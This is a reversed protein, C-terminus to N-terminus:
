KKRKLAKITQNAALKGTIIATPLGTPSFVWQGAQYISPLPTRVSKAIRRMKHEVPIEENTFAWGTITGDTNGTIRAISLPTYSFKDTMGKCLGPYITSDLINIIAEECFVKFEDYWGNDEIHKALKYDFLVSIILGTKGEPALAPDRLVPCSIEYTTLQFYKTLWNKIEEKSGKIPKPGAKSQGTSAPTYFFHESAIKAFTEKDIDLKLYTTFVSDGGVKDELNSRRELVTQKISTDTVSGIDISRYLTKLDAAWILSSYRYTNGNGDAVFQNELDISKIETETRITGGKEKIYRVLSAPVQRTGGLPYYYDLYIKFYSLAFFVPTKQFFHQAIIDLLSENTTYNRLYDVVPIKLSEIKRIARNYKFMWPILEKMFYERDRKPDLFLPNDIGYLVEIYGMMKRIDAIILKIDQENEPYFGRLFVEYADLDDESHLRIVKDEIGVSITSRVFEIEIGLDRLMPLLTGSNEVSRIGADFVFGNRDFSNVLGGCRSEKECLLTAYGAKSLYAAATLGAIGGGVIIVDYEM